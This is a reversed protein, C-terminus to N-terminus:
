AIVLLRKVFNCANCFGETTRRVDIASSDEIGGNRGPYVDSSHTLM